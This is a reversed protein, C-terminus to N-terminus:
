FDSIFVLRCNDFHLHLTDKYQQKISFILEDFIINQGAPCNLFDNLDCSIYPIGTKLLRSGTVRYSLNRYFKLVGDSIPKPRNQYAINLDRLGSRIDSSGTLAILPRIVPKNSNFRDLYDVQYYTLNIYKDWTKAELFVFTTRSM